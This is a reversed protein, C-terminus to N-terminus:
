QVYLNVKEKYIQREINKILAAGMIVDDVFKKM